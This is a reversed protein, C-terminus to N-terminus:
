NIFKIVQGLTLMVDATYNLLEANTPMFELADLFHGLSDRMLDNMEDKSSCTIVHSLINLIQTRVTIEEM